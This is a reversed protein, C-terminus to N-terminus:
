FERSELMAKEIAHDVKKIADMCLVIRWGTLFNQAGAWKKRRWLQTGDSATSKIM